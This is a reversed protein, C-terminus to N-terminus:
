ALWQPLYTAAEQSAYWTLEPEDSEAVLVSEVQSWLVAALLTVEDGVAKGVQVEELEVALVFGFSELSGQRERSAQAALLSLQFESEEEDFESNQDVFAPTRIFATPFRFNGEKVLIEIESPTVALYGRM